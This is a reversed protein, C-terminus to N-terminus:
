GLSPAGKSDARSTGVGFADVMAGRALLDSIVFEDLDSTAFIQTDTLGAEDLRQRVARSLEVVDGSDLRVAKPRLEAQIIKEIAALTDYTDVLLTAHDPFINQCHRFDEEDYDYGM